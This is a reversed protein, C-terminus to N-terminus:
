GKIVTAKVDLAATAPVGRGIVSARANTAAIAAKSEGTHSGASGTREPFLFWSPLIPYTLGATIPKSSLTSNWYKVAAGNYGKYNPDEIREDFNILRALQILLHGLIKKGDPTWVRGPREFCIRIRAAFHPSWPIVQGVVFSEPRTYPYNGNANLDIGIIVPQRRPDSYTGPGLLTKIHYTVRYFWATVAQDKSTIPRVGQKADQWTAHASVDMSVEEDVCAYRMDMALRYDVDRLRGELDQRSLREM